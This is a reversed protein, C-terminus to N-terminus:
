IPCKFVSKIKPIKECCMLISSVKQFFVDDYTLTKESQKNCVFCKCVVKYVEKM